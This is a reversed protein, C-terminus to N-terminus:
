IVEMDVAPTILELLTVYQNNYVAALSTEEQAQLLKAALAYCMPAYLENEYDITDDLSKIAIPKELPNLRKKQRIQNNHLFLEALLINLLKVAFFSMDDEDDIYSINLALANEYIEKATL